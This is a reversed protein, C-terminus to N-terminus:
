HKQSSAHSCFLFGGHPSAHRSIAFHQQKNPGSVPPQSTTDKRIRRIMKLESATMVSMAMM